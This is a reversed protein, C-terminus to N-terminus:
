ATQRRHSVPPVANSCVSRCSRWFSVTATSRPRRAPKPVSWIATSCPSTGFSPTVVQPDEIYTCSPLTELAQGEESGAPLWIYSCRIPLHSYRRQGPRTCLLMGRRVPYANGDVYSVGSDTHYLELEFRTVTREPTRNKYRQSVQSDYIGCRLQDNNLM